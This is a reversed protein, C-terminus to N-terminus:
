NPLIFYYRCAPGTPAEPWPEYAFGTQVGDIWLQFLGISPDECSWRSPPDGADNHQVHVNVEVFAYAPRTVQCEVFDENEAFCDLDNIADVAVGWAYTMGYTTGNMPTPRPYPDGDGDMAVDYITLMDPVLGNEPMDFRYTLFHQGAPPSGGSGSSGTSSSGSSATGSSSGTSATGTSTAGGDGSGSSGGSGNGGAASVTSASGGGGDASSTSGGSGGNGSPTSSGTSGNGSPTGNGSNPGDSSDGDEDNGNSAVNYCSALALVAAVAAVSTFGSIRHM